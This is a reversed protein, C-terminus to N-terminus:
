IRYQEGVPRISITSGNLFPTKDKRMRVIREAWRLMHLKLTQVKHQQPTDNLELKVKTMLDKDGNKEVRMKGGRM